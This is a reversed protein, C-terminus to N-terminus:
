VLLKREVASGVGAAIIEYKRPNEERTFSLYADFSDPDFAWVGRRCEAPNVQINPYVARFAVIHLINPRGSRAGLNEASGLYCGSDWEVRMSARKNPRAFSIVEEKAERRAAELLSEGEHCGGQPPLWTQETPDHVPQVLLVQSRLCIITVVVQRLEGDFWSWHMQHHVDEDRLRVELM